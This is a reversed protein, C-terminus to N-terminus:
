NHENHSVDFKEEKEFSSPETTTLMFSEIANLRKYESIKQKLYLLLMKSMDENYKNLIKVIEKASDSMRSRRNKEYEMKSRIDVIDTIFNKDTSSSLLAELAGNMQKHLTLLKYVPNVSKRTKIAM